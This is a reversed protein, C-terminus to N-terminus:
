SAQTSEPIADNSDSFINRIKPGLVVLVVISVVAILGIILAYEVMSQGSEDIFINM